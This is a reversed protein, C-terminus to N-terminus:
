GHLSEILLVEPLAKGAARQGKVVDHDQERLDSVPERKEVLALHGMPVQLWGVKEEAAAVYPTDLDQVELDGPAEGGRM